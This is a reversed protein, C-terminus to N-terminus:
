GPRQVLDRLHRALVHPQDLPVLTAADPIHVLVAQPLLEALRVGHEAPMMRDQEAWAILVPGTFEGVGSSWDRTAPIPFRASFRRLDERIRPDRSPEFWRQLRGDAIPHAAMEGALRRRVPRLKTLQAQLALGGPLRALRALARGPAGAPVNDFAECAVLALRTIRDALGLEVFIQAGGWDNLVLTVEPLDLAALLAGVLRTLSENTLDDPVPYRHAGMPLTPAICRLEPLLDIVDDWISADLMPGHLLVLVPGDGGSDTYELTATPLEIVPM